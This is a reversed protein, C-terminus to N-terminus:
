SYVVSFTRLQPTLLVDNLFASPLSQKSGFIVFLINAIRNSSERQWKQELLCRKWVNQISSVMM